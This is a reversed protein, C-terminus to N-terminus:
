VNLHKIIFTDFKQLVIEVQKSHKKPQKCDRKILILIALPVSIPFRQTSPVLALPIQVLLAKM